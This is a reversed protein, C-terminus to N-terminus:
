ERLARGLQDGACVVVAVQWSQVSSYCRPSEPLSLAGALLLMVEPLAHNMCHMRSIAQVHGFMRRAAMRGNAEESSKSIGLYDGSPGSAKGSICAHQTSDRNFPQMLLTGAVYTKLPITDACFIRRVLGQVLSWSSPWWRAMMPVSRWTWQWCLCAACFFCFTFTASYSVQCSGPLQEQVVSWSAESAVVQGGNACTALDEALAVADGGFVTRRQCSNHAPNIDHRCAAHLCTPMPLSHQHFGSDHRM